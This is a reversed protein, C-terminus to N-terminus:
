QRRRAKADTLYDGQGKEGYMAVKKEEETYNNNDNLNMQEFGATMKNKNLKAFLEKRRDEGGLAMMRKDM